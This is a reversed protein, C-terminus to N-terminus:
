GPTDEPPPCLHHPSIQRALHQGLSPAALWAEFAATDLDCYRRLRGQVEAIVEQSDPQHCLRGVTRSRPTLVCHYGALSQLGIRDVWVQEAAQGGHIAPAPLWGGLLWLLLLPTM